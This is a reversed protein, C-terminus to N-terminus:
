SFSEILVKEPSQGPNSIHKQLLIDIWSQIQLLIIFRSQQRYWVEKMLLSRTSFLPPFKPKIALKNKSAKSTELQYNATCLMSGYVIVLVFLYRRMWLLTDTNWM